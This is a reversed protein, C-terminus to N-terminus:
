LWNVPYFYKHTFAFCIMFVSLFLLTLHSSLFVHVGFVAVGVVRASM